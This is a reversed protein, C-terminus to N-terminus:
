DCHVHVTYRALWSSRILGFPRPMSRRLAVDEWALSRLLEKGSRQSRGDDARVVGPFTRSWAKRPFGSSAADATVMLPTAIMRAIETLVAGVEANIRGGDDLSQVVVGALNRSNRLVGREESLKKDELTKVPRNPPGPPNGGQMNQITRLEALGDLMALFEPTAM